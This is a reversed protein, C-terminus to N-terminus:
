GLAILRPPSPGVVVQAASPIPAKFLGTGTLNPLTKPQPLSPITVKTSQRLTYCHKCLGAFLQLGTVAIYHITQWRHCIKHHHSPNPISSPPSPPSATATSSCPNYQLLFSQSGSHHSGQETNAQGTGAWHRGLALASRWFPSPVSFSAPLLSHAHWSTQPLRWEPWGAAGFGRKGAWILSVAWISSWIIYGFVKNEHQSQIFQNM